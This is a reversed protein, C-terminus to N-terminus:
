STSLLGRVGDVVDDLAVMEAEESTRGRVEVASVHFRAFHALIGPRDGLAALTAAALMVPVAFALLKRM